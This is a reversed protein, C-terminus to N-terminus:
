PIINPPFIHPLVSYEMTYDPHVYFISLQTSYERRYDPILFLIQLFIIHYSLINLLMIQTFISYVSSLRFIRALLRPWPIIKSRIIHPLLTSERTYNPHLNFISFQTPINEDIIQALSFYKASYYPTLCFIQLFLIPNSLINWLTINTFMSYVSILCLIATSLRPQPHINPPICQALSYSKCSYYPTLCFIEKHLRPSSQSYQASDSYERRYDPSLFLIQLFIIHYSLINLQM